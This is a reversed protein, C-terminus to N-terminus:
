GIVVLIDTAPNYAVTVTQNVYDEFSPSFPSRVTFIAHTNRTLRGIKPHQLTVTFYYAKNFAYHPHGLIVNCFIYGEPKRIM